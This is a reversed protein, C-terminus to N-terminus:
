YDEPNQLRDAFLHDNDEEQQLLPAQEEEDGDENQAATTVTKQSSYINIVKRFIQYVTWCVCGFAPLLLMALLLPVLIKGTKSRSDLNLNMLPFAFSASLSVTAGLGLNQFIVFDTINTSFSKYPRVLLILGAIVLCIGSELILIVVKISPFFGIPISYMAVFVIRFILLMSAFFRADRGDGTSGNRFSGFFADGVVAIGPRDLHLASLLRQFFKFPYLVLLIIPAVVFVALVMIVLVGYTLHEGSFYPLSTNYYFSYNTSSM